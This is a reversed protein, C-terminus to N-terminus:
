KVVEIQGTEIAIMVEDLRYLYGKIESEKLYKELIAVAAQPNENMAKLRLYFARSITPPLKRQYSELKAKANWNTLLSQGNPTFRETTPPLAADNDIIRVQPGSGNDVIMFNGLHRDIQAIIYDFIDLDKMVQSERIQKALEPNEETVKALAKAGTMFTQLSGLQGDYQVIETKPTEIGLLGAIDSVAGAKRIGAGPVIGLPQGLLMGSEGAAPKFLYWDGEIQLLKMGSTISGTNFPKVADIEYKSIIRVELEKGGVMYTTRSGMDPFGSSPKVIRESEDNEVAPIPTYQNTRPKPKAKEPPKVGTQTVVPKPPQPKVPSEPLPPLVESTSRSSISSGGESSRVETVANALLKNPYSDPDAKITDLAQRELDIDTILSRIHPTRKTDDDHDLVYITCTELLNQLATYVKAQRPGSFHIVGMGQLLSNYSDLKAIVDKYATSMNKLTKGFLKVDEHPKGALTTLERSSILRQVRQPQATLDAVSKFRGPAAGREAEEEDHTGSNLARMVSEATADAEQEFSDGAPGVNLKAQVKNSKGGGQQVVHTLEHALLRKGSTTGPEYAGQRFFIDSGTTFAKASLSQNLEDAQHDTHVRVQSFDAGLAGGVQKNLKAELPRGSGRASEIGAQVQAPAEGGEAGVAPTRQALLRQVARNGVLRQLQAIGEPSATEPGSIAQRANAQDEAAKQRADTEPAAPRRSLDRDHKSVPKRNAM